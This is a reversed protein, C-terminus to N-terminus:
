CPFCVLNVNPIYILTHLIVWLLKKMFSPVRQVVQKRRSELLRTPYELLSVNFDGNLLHCFQPTCLNIVLCLKFIHIALWLFPLTFLEYYYKFSAWEFHEMVLVDILLWTKGMVRDFPWLCLVKMKDLELSSTSGQHQATLQNVRESDM